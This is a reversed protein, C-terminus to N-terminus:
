IVSILNDYSNKIQIFKDSDGCKDPHYLLALKKYQKRLETETKPPVLGLVNWDNSYCQKGRTYTKQEYKPPPPIHKFTENIFDELTQRQQRQNIWCERSCFRTSSIPQNCKPCKPYYQREDWYNYDDFMIIINYILKDNIM